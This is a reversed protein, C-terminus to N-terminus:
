TLVMNLFDDILNAGLVLGDDVNSVKGTAQPQVPHEPSLRSKM